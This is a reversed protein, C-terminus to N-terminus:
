VSKQYIDIPILAIHITFRTIGSYHSFLVIIISYQPNRRMGSPPTFPEDLSFPATQWALCSAVAHLPDYILKILRKNAKELFVCSMTKSIFCLYAQPKMTNRFINEVAVHNKICKFLINKINKNKNKLYIYIYIYTYIYSLLIICIVTFNFNSM